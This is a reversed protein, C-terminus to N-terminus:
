PDITSFRNADFRIYPIILSPKKVVLFIKSITPNQQVNLIHQMQSFEDDNM